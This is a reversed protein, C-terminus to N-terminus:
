TKETETNKVTAIGRQRERKKEGETQRMDRVCGRDRHEETDSNRQTHTKKRETHRWRKRQRGKQTDEDGERETETGGEM